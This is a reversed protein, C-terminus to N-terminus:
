RVQFCYLHRVNLCTAAMGSSTWTTTATASGFTATAATDSWNKCNAGSPAGGTNTGTWVTGTVPRGREDQDLPLTPAGRLAAVSPFVVNRSTSAVDGVVWRADLNPPFRTLVGADLGSVWAVYTGPLGADAATAQCFADARAVSGFSPGANASTVFVRFTSTTTSGGDSGGGSGSTGGAAGGGAGGAGGASGGSGGSTGGLCGGASCTTGLSACDICFAGGQGCAQNVAGGQCRGETDCCGNCNEATCRTTCLGSACARASPCAACDAGNRGCATDDDGTVCAGRSDCCGGCTAPGCPGQPTCTALSLLCVILALRM